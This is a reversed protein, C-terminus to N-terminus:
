ADLGAELNATMMRLTEITHQYEEATIGESPADQHGLGPREGRRASAGDPTLHLARNDDRALWKRAHLDEVIGGLSAPLEETPGAQFARRLTLADRCGHM